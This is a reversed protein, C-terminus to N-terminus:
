DEVEFFSEINEKRRFLTMYVVSGNFLTGAKLTDDDLFSLSYITWELLGSFELRYADAVRHFMMDHRIFDKIPKARIQFSWGINAAM